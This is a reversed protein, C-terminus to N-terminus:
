LYKEVLPDIIRLQLSSFSHPSILYLSLIYKSAYSYSIIKQQECILGCIDWWEDLTVFGKLSFFATPTCLRKIISHDTLSSLRPIFNNCFIDEFARYKRNYLTYFNWIAKKCPITEKYWEFSFLKVDMM